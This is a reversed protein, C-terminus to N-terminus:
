ESCDMGLWISESVSVADRGMEVNHVRVADAGGHVCAAVAAGTGWDREPGAAKGTIRGIFSKRSPGVLIPQHLYARRCVGLAQRFRELSRLIELNHKMAKCFGLGPDFVLNWAPVGAAEARIAQEALERAVESVVDDYTLNEKEQMTSPDGRMHMLILPVGLQAVISLMDPDLKGGSVDNVISAGGDTVCAHAVRSYFTDM